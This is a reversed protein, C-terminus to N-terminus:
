SGSGSKPTILPAIPQSQNELPDSSNTGNVASVLKDLRALVVQIRDSTDPTLAFSVSRADIQAADSLVGHIKLCTKVAEMQVGGDPVKAIVNGDKDVVHRRFRRMRALDKGVIEIPNMELVLEKARSVLKENNLLRTASSAAAELSSNPYVEAYMARKSINEPSKTSLERAYVRALKEHRPNKLMILFYCFAPAGDVVKATM